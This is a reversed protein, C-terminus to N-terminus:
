VRVTNFTRLTIPRRKMHNVGGSRFIPCGRLSIFSDHSHTSVATKCVVPKDQSGSLVHRLSSPPTSLQRSADPNSASLSSGSSSIPTHRDGCSSDPVCGVFIAYPPRNCTQCPTLACASTLIAPLTHGATTVQRAM